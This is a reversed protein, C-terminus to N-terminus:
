GSVATRRFKLLNGERYATVYPRQAGHPRPNSFM